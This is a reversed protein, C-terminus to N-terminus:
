EALFNYIRINECDGDTESNIWIENLREEFKGNKNMDYWYFLPYHAEWLIMEDFTNGNEDVWVKFVKRGTMYDIRGDKDLDYMRVYLEIIGVNNDGVFTEDYLSPEMPPLEHEPKDCAWANATNASFLVLILFLAIIINKFM